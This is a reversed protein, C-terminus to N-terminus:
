RSAHSFETTPLMLAPADTPMGDWVVFLSTGAPTRTIRGRRGTPTHVVRDLLQFRAAAPQRTM